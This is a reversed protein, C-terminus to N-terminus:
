PADENNAFESIRKSALYDFGQYTFKLKAYETTDMHFLSKDLHKINANYGKPDNLLVFLAV